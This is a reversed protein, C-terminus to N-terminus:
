RKSGHSECFEEFENSTFEGGNNSRLCKIRDGTENEVLAKFSRFHNFAEFKHKLFAVWTMRTQDDNFLMFYKEGQLSQSRTPGCLDTHIIELPKSPTFEKYKFSVHTKKGHECYKCITCSPKTIKPIGRMGQNKNIKVLNDFNTHGMRKHWLWSEDIKGILCREGKIEELIYVNSPTKVARGVLKGSKSRRIECEHSDFTLTHGQDCM